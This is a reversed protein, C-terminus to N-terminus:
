FIKSMLGGICRNSICYKRMYNGGKFLKRGQITEACKHVTILPWLVYPRLWYLITETSVIHPFVTHATLNKPLMVCGWTFNTNQKQKIWKKMNEYIVIQQVKSLLWQFSMLPHMYNVAQLLKYINKSFVSNPNEVIWEMTCKQMLFSIQDPVM